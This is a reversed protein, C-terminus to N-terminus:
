RRGGQWRAQGGIRRRGLRWPDRDDGDERGEHHAAQAAECAPLARVHALQQRWFQLGLLRLDLIEDHDVLAVVVVLHTVAEGEIGDHLHAEEHVALRAPLASAARSLPGVGVARQSLELEVEGVVVIALLALFLAEMVHVARQVELGLTRLRGDVLGLREHALGLGGLCLVCADHPLCLLRGLLGLSQSSVPSSPTFRAEARRAKPQWRRTSWARERGAPGAGPARGPRAWWM